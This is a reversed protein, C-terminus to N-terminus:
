GWALMSAAASAMPADGMPAAELPRAAVPSASVSSTALRGGVGVGVRVRVRVGFGARALLVRAGVRVWTALATSATPCPASLTACATQGAQLAAGRAQM